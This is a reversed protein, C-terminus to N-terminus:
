NYERASELSDVETPKEEMVKMIVEAIKESAHGDERCEKGKLFETVKEQYVDNNFDEIERVFDDMNEAIPFPTESLSYYLGRKSEYTERDPAYIFGPKKSLVFDYICSSYDTILADSEAMIEQIDPYSSVDIGRIAVKAKSKMM